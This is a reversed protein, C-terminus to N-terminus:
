ETEKDRKAREAAAADAAAGLLGYGAIDQWPSEGFADKKNAIRFLKDVIRVVALADRYQSPEIGDPYLAALVRESRGFSDGYAAQKEDVLQGLELGRSAYKGITVDNDSESCVAIVWSPSSDRSSLMQGSLHAEAEGDKAHMEEVTGMALVAKYAQEPADACKEAAKKATKKTRKKTKKKAM